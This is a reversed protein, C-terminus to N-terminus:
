GHAGSSRLFSPLEWILKGGRRQLLDIVNDLGATDKPGAGKSVMMGRCHEAWGLATNNDAGYGNIKAGRDLLVKVVEVNGAMSAHALIKTDQYTTEPSLGHDLLIAIVGADRNEIADLWLNEDTPGFKVGRSIVQEVVLASCNSVALWLITAGDTEPINPDANAHLLMLAVDSHGGRAALSLATGSEVDRANVDSGKDILLRCIEARGEWAASMLATSGTGLRPTPHFMHTLWSRLSQPAPPVRERVNANAGKNLLNRTLEVNGIDVASYLRRNLQFEERLHGQAVHVGVMSATIFLALASSVYIRRM